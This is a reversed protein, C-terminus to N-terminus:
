LAAACAVRQGRQRRAGGDDPSGVPRGHRGDGLGRGSQQLTLKLGRGSGPRPNWALSGALGRDRFGGAEHSGLGRASVEAAIGSAPDLWALGGGLDVGFGTEADGGDHRLGVEMRPVLAGGHWTGEVGLRLRTAGATMANLNVYDGAGGRVAESSTRVNLADTQVALEPEGEAPAEVAVGRLGVAAGMALDMDTETATKGEPTLALSGTGYGVVGWLTVRESLAHRGYPYVGSVTSSVEGEDSGRYSAEGRLHAVM